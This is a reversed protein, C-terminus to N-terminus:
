AMRFANIFIKAVKYLEKTDVTNIDANEGSNKSGNSYNNLNQRGTIGKIDCDEGLRDKMVSIMSNVLELGDRNEIAIIGRTGKEDVSFSASIYGYETAMGAEVRGNIGEEHKITLNITSVEGNKDTYPITYNERAAYRSALSLQKNCLSLAKLDISSESYYSLNSITERVNELVKEYGEVASERDDFAELISDLYDDNDGSQSELSDKMEEKLKTIKSFVNEKPDRLNYASILNNVTVEVDNQVLEKAEVSHMEIIERLERYQQERYQQEMEKNQDQGVRNAFAQEIQDTISVGHKVTDQLMGFSDDVSVNLKVRRSRIGSLLNGFSIENGSNMLAGLSAYDSKELKNVFRYIGIFAERESESIGKSQELKYLFRSYKEAEDEDQKMERLVRNLEDVSMELPNIGNRILELTKAPTLANVAVEVKECAERVNSVATENIVMNNYGLIRVAKRNEDNLQMGLDKLIDDVNRFAKQISDGMDARPSTMLTEYSNRASEYRDKLETGTEHVDSLSYGEELKLRGITAAPLEPIAAVVTQTNQYINTKLELNDATDEGFMTKQLAYEQEKLEEVLESLPLTDINIGKKLLAVNIDLTMRLRIEELSRRAAINEANDSIEAVESEAKWLNKLNVDAKENIVADVASESINETADLIRAAKEYINESDDVISADMARKGEGVSNSAIKVAKDYDIPLEVNNLEDIRLINSANVELGNEVLWTADRICDEKSIGEINMNEITKEIEDRLAETDTVDAKKALYGQMGVSYYGGINQNNVSISSYKATYINQITPDLQNMVMYKKTAESLEVVNELEKAASDIDRANKETVPIDAQRMAAELQNAAAVSGTINKLKESDIDDNYGATVQGSQAMVAKIHDVITESEKASMDGPDFGDECMKAYDEGSVTNALVTMMDQQTSVDINGAQEMIDSVAKKGDLVIDKERGSQAIDLRISSNYEAKSVNHTNVNGVSVNPAYTVLDMGVRM